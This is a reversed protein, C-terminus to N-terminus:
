QARFVKDRERVKISPDHDLSASAIMPATPHIKRHHHECRSTFSSHMLPKSCMQHDAMVASVAVSLVVDRHGALTQVVEKTQLDWVYVRQDESGSVVFIEPLGRRLMEAEREREKEERTKREPDEEVGETSTGNTTTPVRTRSRTRWQPRTLSASVCFKVNQHGTYTKLVRSNALDWLRITSDLSSALLQASSPSFTVFSSGSQFM